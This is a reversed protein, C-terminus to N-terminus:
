NLFKGHAEKIKASVSYFYIGKPLQPIQVVLNNFSQSKYILKSDITYIEILCNEAPLYFRNNEFRVPLKKDLEEVFPNGNCTITPVNTFSSDTETTDSFTIALPQVNITKNLMSRNFPTTFESQVLGCANTYTTDFKGYVSANAWFGVALIDNTHSVISKIVNFQNFSVAKEINGSSDM